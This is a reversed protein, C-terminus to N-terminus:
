MSAQYSKHEAINREADRDYSKALERLTVAFRQYGNCYIMVRREASGNAPLSFIVTGAAGAGTCNVTTQTANANFSTAKCAGTSFISGNVQFSDIGNNTNTNILLAGGSLRMRESYTGNVLTKWVFGGIFFSIISNKTLFSDSKFQM